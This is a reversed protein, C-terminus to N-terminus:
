YSLFRTLLLEKIRKDVENKTELYYQFETLTFYGATMGIYRQVLGSNKSFLIQLMKRQETQNNLSKVVLFIANQQWELLWLDHQFKLIPRLVENQFLEIETVETKEKQIEPRLGKLMEETRM